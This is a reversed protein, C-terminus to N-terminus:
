SNMSRTCGWMQRKVRKGNEISIWQFRYDCPLVTYKTFQNGEEFDCILWRVYVGKEDPIDIFQSVPFTIDYKNRYDTEFYYLEDDEDFEVKQSPKFMIHFAVQDKDMSGYSTVIFKADIRTKTTNRYTMHKNKEPQDDHAYDYIYCIKSQIDNNWTYEMVFDSNEKYMQGVTRAGNTRLASVRRATELSPM